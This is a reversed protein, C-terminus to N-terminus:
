NLRITDPFTIASLYLGCAPVSRGAKRRDKSKLIEKFDHVTVKGEGVDLMTGVLARVMGRLFRNATVSFYLKDNEQKWQAHFITCDFTNVDTHVKSFAQFDTWNLLLQCCENMSKINLDRGFFYSRNEQFPNKKRHIRYIYARSDADFRASASGHVEYLDNIAIDDPLISNLQFVFDSHSAIEKETDFHAVQQNAHVGTDTRGSGTCATDIGLRKSLAENIKAQISIANNQIQWGHYNTGDYAIEIFYRM